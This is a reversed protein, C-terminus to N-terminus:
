SNWFRFALKLQHYAINAFNCSAIQRLLGSSQGSAQEHRAQQGPTKKGFFRYHFQIM